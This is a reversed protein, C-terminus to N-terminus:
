GKRVEFYLLNAKKIVVGGGPLEIFGNGEGNVALEDIAVLHKSELRKLSGRFKELWLRVVRRRLAPSSKKIVKTDLASDILAAELTKQALLNLEEADEGILQATQSLQRIIKPNFTELLPLLERRVRVRSFSRDENMTDVRFGIGRERCYEETTERGAWNLFPRILLYISNLNEAELKRISKMAGLGDLSSGRILRMLFTEAQDNLTHGTLVAFASSKEATKTLFQYRANRAAQELNEKRNSIQSEPNWEGYVFDFEFQAALEEVFRADADSEAARLRHNFHAVVFNLDLKRATKLECLASLLASSDAGGSVAVVFTQGKDPLDLVRWERRLRRAFGSLTPPKM